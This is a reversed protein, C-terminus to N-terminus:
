PRFNMYWAYPVQIDLADGLEAVRTGQGIHVRLLSPFETFLFFKKNMCRHTIDSPDNIVFIGHIDVDRTTEGSPICITRRYLVQSMKYRNVLM